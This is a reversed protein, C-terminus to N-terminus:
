PHMESEMWGVLIPTMRQHVGVQNKEVYANILKYLTDDINVSIYESLLAQSRMEARIASKDTTRDSM